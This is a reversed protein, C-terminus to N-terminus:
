VGFQQLHYDIHRAALAGWTKGTLMGFFPHPAWDADPGRAAFREMVALFAERDAEFDAPETTLMVPDTEVKGKPWPIVHIILHKVGPLAMPGSGASAPLDGLAMRLQDGIHCLMKPAQMSGWRREADPTLRRVRAALAQRHTTDFLTKMPHPRNYSDFLRLTPSVAIM